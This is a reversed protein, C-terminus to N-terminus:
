GSQPPLTVIQWDETGFRIDREVFEWVVVRKRKLINHKGAVQQRVLTSAGGDNVLGTLPLGLHYAVHEIFGGAKPEDRRYIRLFSDGMVLVTSHPDDRYVSGDAEIVQTCDLHEPEYCGAIQEVHVMEIVDGYRKIPVSKLTYRGPTVPQVWGLEVLRGAVAKAALRMGTPSWHSDQALYLDRDPRDTRAQRFLNFLDMVEIGQERLLEMMVLTQTNVNSRDGIASPNLRDAYVSAKNPAIMVMLEIGRDQLQDRFSKVAALIETPAPSGPAPWPEVLYQVAPQYFLWGNPGALAKDPLEGLVRYRAYQIWPRIAQVPRCDKQLAHAFAKRQEAVPLNSFLELCQPRDGASLEMCIQMVPIVTLLAVFGGVGWQTTRSKKSVPM